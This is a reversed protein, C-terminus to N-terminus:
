QSFLLNINNIIHLYSYNYYSICVAFWFHKSIVVSIQLDHKGFIELGGDSIQQMCIRCFNM